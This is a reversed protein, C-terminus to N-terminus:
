PREPGSFRALARVLADPIPATSEVLAMFADDDEASVVLPRDFLEIRPEWSPSLWLDGPQVKM